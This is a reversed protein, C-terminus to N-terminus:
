ASPKSFNSGLLAMPMGFLKEMAEWFLRIQKKYVEPDKSFRDNVNM